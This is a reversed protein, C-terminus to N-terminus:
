MWVFLDMNKLPIYLRWLNKPHFLLSWLFEMSAASQSSRLNCIGEQWGRWPGLKSDRGHPEKPSFCWFCQALQCNRSQASYVLEWCSTSLFFLHRFPPTTAHWDACQTLAAGMSATTVLWTHSIVETRSTQIANDELYLHINAKLSKTHLLLIRLMKSNINIVHHLSLIQPM